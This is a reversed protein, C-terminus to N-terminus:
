RSRVAPAGLKGRSGATDWEISNFMRVAHASDTGEQASAVGALVCLAFILAFFALLTSRFRAPTSASYLASLERM